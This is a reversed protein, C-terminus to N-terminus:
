SKEPGACALPLGMTPLSRANALGSTLAEHRSHNRRLCLVRMKVCRGLMHFIEILDWGCRLFRRGHDHRRGDRSFEGEYVVGNRLTVKGTLARLGREFCGEFCLGEEWLTGHGDPVAGALGHSRTGDAWIVAEEEPGCHQLDAGDLGYM